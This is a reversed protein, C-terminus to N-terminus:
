LENIRQDYRILQYSTFAESNSCLSFNYTTLSAKAPFRIGLRHSQTANKGSGMIICIIATSNTNEKLEIAKM